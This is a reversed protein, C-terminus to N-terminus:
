VIIIVLLISANMNYRENLPNPRKLNFWNENSKPRLHLSAELGRSAVQVSVPDYGTSKHPVQVSACTCSLSVQIHSGRVRTHRVNM